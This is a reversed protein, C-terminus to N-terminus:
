RVQCRVARVFLVLRLNSRFYHRKNRGMSAVASLFLVTVSNPLAFEQSCLGTKWHLWWRHTRVQSSCSGAHQAWLFRCRHLHGKPLYWGFLMGQHLALISGLAPAARCTWPELSGLTSWPRQGLTRCYPGHSHYRTHYPSPSEGGLTVSSM